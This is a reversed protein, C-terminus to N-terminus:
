VIRGATNADAAAKIKAVLGKPVPTLGGKRVAQAACTRCDGAVGRCTGTLSQIACPFDEVALRACEFNFHQVASGYGPIKKSLSTISGPAWTPATWATHAVPPALPSAPPAPPALPAPPLLTIATSTPAATPTTVSAAASAAAAAAAATAASPVRGKRKGTLTPVVAATNPTVTIATPLPRTAGAKAADAAHEALRDDVQMNSAQKTILPEQVHRITEAALAAFNIIVDPKETDLIAMVAPLQDVVHAIQYRYHHSVPWMAAPKRPSRGIGFHEIGCESLHTALNLAFCSGGGLIGIRM